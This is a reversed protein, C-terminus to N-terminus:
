FKCKGFTHYKYQSVWVVGGYVCGFSDCDLCAIMASSFVLLHDCLTGEIMACLVRIM